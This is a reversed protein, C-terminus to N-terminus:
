SEKPQRHAEIAARLKAEEKILGFGKVKEAKATAKLEAFSQEALPKDTPAAAPAAAKKTSLALAGIAVLADGEKADIEVTEGPPIAKEGGNRLPIVVIYTKKM